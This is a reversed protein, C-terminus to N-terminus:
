VRRNDGNGTRSLKISTKTPNPLRFHDMIRDLVYWKYPLSFIELALFAMICSCWALWDQLGFGISVLLAGVAFPQDFNISAGMMDHCKYRTNMIFWFHALGIFGAGLFLIFAALINM